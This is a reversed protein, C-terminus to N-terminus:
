RATFAPWDGSWKLIEHARRAQSAAVTTRVAARQLRTHVEVLDRTARKGPGRRALRLWPMRREAQLHALFMLLLSIRAGVGATVTTTVRREITIADLPM